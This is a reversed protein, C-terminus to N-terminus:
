SLIQLLKQWQFGLFRPKWSPQGLFRPKRPSGATRRMGKKQLQRKKSADADRYSAEDTPRNTPRNTPGDTISEDFDIFFRSKSSRSSNSLAPRPFFSPRPPLSPSSPLVLLFSPRSSPPVLLTFFHFLLQFIVFSFTALPRMMPRAPGQQLIKM